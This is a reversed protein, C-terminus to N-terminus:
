SGREVGVSGSTEQRLRNLSLHEQWLLFAGLLSPPLFVVFYLIVGYSLAVNKDVAFVSLALICIYHFIGVKGPSSPVAVGAQLSILLFFAASLPLRLGLAAFVIYNTSASLCWIFLSWVWIQLSPWRHRLAELGDLALHMQRVIRQRALEPLIELFRGFLMLLREGRYALALIVVLMLGIAVIFVAGPRPLWSPLYVIPLLVVLWFLLMVMDILKEVVVTTLASAKSIHESEGILYVRAVEGLRAPAFINVMHGIVFASFLRSYRVQDQRPYFLFRWRLTKALLTLVITLIGLAVFMYNARKLAVWVQGFDIDKLALGLCILSLLVGFWLRGRQKALGAIFDRM